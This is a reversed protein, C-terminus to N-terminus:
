DVLTDSCPIVHARSNRVHARSLYVCTFDNRVCIINNRRVHFTKMKKVMMGGQPSPIDLLSYLYVKKRAEYKGISTFTYTNDNLTNVNAYILTSGM